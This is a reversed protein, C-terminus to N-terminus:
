AYRTSAYSPDYRWSCYDMATKVAASGAESCSGINPRIDLTKFELAFRSRRYRRAHSRLVRRVEFRAAPAFHVRRDRQMAHKICRWTTQQGLCRLLAVVSSQRGIAAKQDRLRASHWQISGQGGRGQGHELRDAYRGTLRYGLGMDDWCAAAAFRARSSPLALRCRSPECRSENSDASSAGAPGACFSFLRATSGPWAIRRVPCM